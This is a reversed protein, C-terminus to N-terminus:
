KEVIKIEVIEIKEVIERSNRNERSNWGSWVFDKSNGDKRGSLIDIGAQTEIKSFFIKRNWYKQGDM